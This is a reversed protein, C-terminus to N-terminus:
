AEQSDDFTVVVHYDEDIFGNHELWYAIEQWEGYPFRSREVIKNGRKVTVVYM